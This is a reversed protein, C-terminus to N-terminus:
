YRRYLDKSVLYIRITVDQYIRTTPIDEISLKLIRVYQYLELYLFIYALGGTQSKSVQQVEKNSWLNAVSIHTVDPLHDFVRCINSAYVNWTMKTWQTIDTQRAPQIPIYLPFWTPCVYPSWCLGKQQRGDLKAPIFLLM